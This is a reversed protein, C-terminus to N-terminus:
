GDQAARSPGYDRFKELVRAMEDDGLLQPGGIQLSLVYQQALLEVEETLWLARALDPGTAIMGHNALLCALRDQLAEVAYRSLQETGFTAYPACRISNGGAAAVMYHLAPIDRGQIAVVSAYTSHVHVVANLEPRAHLIARHFHWESSPKQHDPWRGQADVAVLDEPRLAEYPVGSPTILMGDGLRASVNGSTGQNLGRRNTELATDIIGQRLAMEDTAPM